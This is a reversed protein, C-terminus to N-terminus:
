VGKGHYAQVHQDIAKEIRTDVEKDFTDFKKDLREIQKSINSLKEDIQGMKYQSDGTDKTSKDKRNYFFGLLAIIFSFIAIATALDM